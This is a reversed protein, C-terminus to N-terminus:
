PIPTKTLRTSSLPSAALGSTQPGDTLFRAEQGKTPGASHRQKEEFILAPSDHM